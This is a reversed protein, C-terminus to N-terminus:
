FRLNKYIREPISRIIRMIYRWFWPVYVIDNGGDMAKVIRKAVQAPLAWLRGKKFAETMPTDVFGLRLDLVQVSSHAFRQRMGSLFISLGGKATGYVYNAARGRDGAVSTMVAVTGRGEKALENALLTLLSIPSVLNTALLRLTEQVSGQADKQQGLEGHALLVTDLGGMMTRAETLINGHLALDNLDAVLTHVDRRGRIRLDQANAALKESNRGVLFLTDGREVFLRAVAQAIASNAGLILIKRM